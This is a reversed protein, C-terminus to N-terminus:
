FFLILRKVECRAIEKFEANNIKLYSFNRVDVRIPQNQQIRKRKDRRGIAM